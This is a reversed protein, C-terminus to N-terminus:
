GVKLYKSTGQSGNGDLTNRPDGGNGGNSGTLGKPCPIGHNFCPCNVNLMEIMYIIKGVKYLQRVVVLLVPLDILNIWPIISTVDFSM